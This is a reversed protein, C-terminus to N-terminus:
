FIENFFKKWKMDTKSHHLSIAQKIKNLYKERSDSNIDNSILSYFENWNDFKLYLDTYKPNYVDFYYTWNNFSNIFWDVQGHFEFLSKQKSVIEKYFHATPIATLVQYNLNQFIKMTSFQYPFYIFLNHERATLPGGYSPSSYLKYRSNTLNSSKLINNLFNKQYIHCYIITKKELVTSKNM